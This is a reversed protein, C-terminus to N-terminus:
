SKALCCVGQICGGCSESTYGKHKIMCLSEREETATMPTPPLPMDPNEPTQKSTASSSPPQPSAQPKGSHSAFPIIQPSEFRSQRTKQGPPRRHTLLFFQKEVKILVNLATSIESMKAGDKRVTAIAKDRIEILLAIQTSTFDSPIENPSTTFNHQM